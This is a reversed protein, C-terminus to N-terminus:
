PNGRVRGNARKDREPREHRVRNARRFATADDSLEGRFVTGYQRAAERLRPLHKLAERLSMRARPAQLAVAAIVAGEVDRIPVALCVVGLLFEEDDQAYGQRRIRELEAVLRAHSTLTKPTYRTLPLARLLREREGEPLFALFLKGMATCHHDVRSGADFHLRLPWDAEVRDIYVVSRDDLVGLNCTERVARSLGELISHRAGLRAAARLGGQAMETMRPGVTFRKADPERRLFGDRELMLCIRHVTPKPVGLAAAIDSAARPRPAVAVAELIALTREIASGKRRPQTM